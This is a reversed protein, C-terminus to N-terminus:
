PLAVDISEEFRSTTPKKNSHIDYMRLKTYLHSRDMGLKLALKSVNAGANEYENKLIQSEYRAIRDYFSLSDDHLDSAAQKTFSKVGDRLRPPLDAVEIHDGETVAYLYAVLNSLERVNGPWDYARLFDSAEDTFSIMRSGRSHFQAFHELLESVDERRERLSPLPIPIVNLRQYLDDKFLRLEVLEELKRNTACVVRFELPISRSAGLRTVEKEQVVRLLKAQIELPMNAVEDFYIIGENAEEFVGKKLRDAGTFAGKEHGFLISEATNGHITSSDVAVFPALSGDALEDRLLRAVVEKGTGTEGFIVVNASSVRVKEILKRLSQIAPSQGVLSIRQHDRVAASTQQQKRQLLQRREFVRAIAHMLEDADVDKAIYDAAGLRMAERVTEFDKLGSLMLITLEEDTSRFKPISELGETATRIQVDLLLLDIKRNRVIALAEDTNYASLVDFDKKLVQRLALQYTQDDDCILIQPRFAQSKLM